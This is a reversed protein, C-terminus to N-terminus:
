REVKIEPTCCAHQYWTLLPADEKSFLAQTDDMLRTMVIPSSMFQRIALQWKHGRVVCTVRAAFPSTKGGMGVGMRQRVLLVGATFVMNRLEYEMAIYIEAFTVQYFSGKVPSKGLHAQASKGRPVHFTDEWCCNALMSFFTGADELVGEHELRDFM